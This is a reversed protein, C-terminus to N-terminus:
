IQYKVLEIHYLWKEWPTMDEDEYENIMGFEWFGYAITALSVEDILNNRYKAFLEETILMTYEEKQKAELIIIVCWKIIDLSLRVNNVKLIVNSM